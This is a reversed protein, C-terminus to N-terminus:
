GTVSEIHQNLVRARKQIDAAADDKEKLIQFYDSAIDFAVLIATKRESLGETNEMIAKFKDNVFRAINKVKEEDEDSKIRYEHGLITVSVPKELRV